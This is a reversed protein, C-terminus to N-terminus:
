RVPKAKRLNPLGLQFPIATTPLLERYGRWAGVFLQPTLFYAEGPALDLTVGPARPDAKFTRQGPPFSAVLYRGYGVVGLLRDGEWVKVNGISDGGRPQYVVVLAGDRPPKGIAAIVTDSLGPDYGPPALRPAPAPAPAVAAPASTTRAEATGTLLAALLGLAFVKPAFISLCSV